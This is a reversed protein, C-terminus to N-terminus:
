VELKTKIMKWQKTRREQDEALKSRKGFREAKNKWPYWIRAVEEPSADHEDRFPQAWEEVEDDTPFKGFTDLYKYCECVICHWEFSKCRSGLTTWGKKLKRVKV